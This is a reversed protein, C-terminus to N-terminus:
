ADHFWVHHLVFQSAMDSNYIAQHQNENRAYDRSSARDYKLKQSISSTMLIM